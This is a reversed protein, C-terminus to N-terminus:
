INYAFLPQFDNLIDTCSLDIALDKIFAHNPIINKRIRSSGGLANVDLWAATDLERFMM